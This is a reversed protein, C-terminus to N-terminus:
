GKPELRQDLAECFKDVFAKGGLTQATNKASQFQVVWAGLETVEDIAADGMWMADVAAKIIDKIGDPFRCDAKAERRGPVYVLGMSSCKPCPKKAQAIEMPVEAHCRHCKPLYHGDTWPDDRGARPFLHVLVDEERFLWEAFHTSFCTIANLDLHILSSTEPLGKNKEFMKEHLDSTWEPVPMGPM